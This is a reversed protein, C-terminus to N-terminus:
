SKCAVKNPIQTGWFRAVALASALISQRATGIVNRTKDTDKRAKQANFQHEYPGNMHQLKDTSTM